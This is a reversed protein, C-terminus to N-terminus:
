KSKEELRSIREHVNITRESEMRAFCDKFEKRTEKASEDVQLNVQNLSGSFEKRTEKASDDVKLNVENISKRTDNALAVGAVLLTGGIAIMQKLSVIM